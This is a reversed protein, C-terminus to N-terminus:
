HVMGVTQLLSEADLIKSVLGVMYKRDGLKKRDLSRLDAKVGKWVRAPDLFQQDLKEWVNTLTACRPVLSTLSSPM